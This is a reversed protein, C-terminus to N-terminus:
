LAYRSSSSPGDIRLILALSSAVSGDAGWLRKADELAVAELRVLLALCRARPVTM